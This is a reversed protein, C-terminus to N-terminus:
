IHILSLGLKDWLWSKGPFHPRMRPAFTGAFDEFPEGVHWRRAGGGEPAINAFFRLIRRGQQMPRSPFADIHLLRDDQLVSYVPGLLGERPGVTRFRNGEDIVLGAVTPM